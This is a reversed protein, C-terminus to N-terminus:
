AAGLGVLCVLCAVADGEPARGGAVVEVGHSGLPASGVQQAGVADGAAGGTAAAGGGGGEGFAGSVVGDLGAAAPARGGGHGGVDLFSAAVVVGIGRLRHSTLAPIPERSCRDGVVM